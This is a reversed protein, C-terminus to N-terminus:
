YVHKIKKDFLKMNKVTYEKKGVEKDRKKNEKKNGKKNPKPITNRIDYLHTIKPSVRKNESSDM